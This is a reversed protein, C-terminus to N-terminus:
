HVTGRHIVSRIATVVPINAIDVDEDNGPVTVMGELDQYSSILVGM